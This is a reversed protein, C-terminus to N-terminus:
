QTDEKILEAPTASIAKEVTERDWTMVATGDERFETVWTRLWDMAPKNRPGKTWRFTVTMPDKDANLLRIGTLLLADEIQRGLARCSIDIEEIVVNTGDTSGLILAITGSNSLRDSLAVTVAHGTPSEIFSVIEAENTRRLSVNFQNTKKTLEHMRATGGRDDIRFHLELNLSALYESTDAASAIAIEREQAARIDATRLADESSGGFRFLGPYHKLGRLTEVPSSAHLIKLDPIAASTTALEGANDDVFLIADTGIHLTEAVVKLNEAKTRWNVAIVAARDRLVTLERRSAFLRDVDDRENKSVVAIFIGAEHLRVIQDLLALHEDTIAIEDVGDEGLVGGYLTNDLDVAVAKLPPLVTAPLWNLGFERATHLVARDSLKSAAIYTSREDWFEPGLSKSIAAVDCHFVSPLQAIHSELTSNLHDNLGADNTVLIPATTLSRLHAIRQILWDVLVSSSMSVYRNFDLSVVQIEARSVNGFALSDDYEGFEFEAKLGSFALFPEMATAVFEFPQNRHVQIQTHHLQWTPTLPLLESRRLQHAFLPAQWSARTLAADIASDTAPKM